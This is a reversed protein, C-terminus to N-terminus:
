REVRGGPSLAHIADAIAQHMPCLRNWSRAGVDGSKICKWPDLPVHGNWKQCDMEAFVTLFPLLLDVMVRERGADPM